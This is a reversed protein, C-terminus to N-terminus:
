LKVWERVIAEFAAVAAFSCRGEPAPLRIEEVTVANRTLLALVIQDPVISAAVIFSLTGTTATIGDFNRSLWDLTRPAFNEGLVEDACDTPTFNEVLLDIAEVLAPSTSTTTM